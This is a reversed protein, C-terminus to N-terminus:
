PEPTVTMTKRKGGTLAFKVFGTAPFNRSTRNSNIKATVVGKGRAIAPSYWGLPSGSGMGKSRQSDGLNVLWRVVTSKTGAIEKVFVRLASGGAMMISYNVIDDSTKFTFSTGFRGDLSVVNAGMLPDVDAFKSQDQIQPTDDRSDNDTAFSFADAVSVVGDGDRDALVVGGDPREGALATTFYYSFEDYGCCFDGDSYMAYSPKDYAAASLFIRNPGALDDAFGGGNCQEMVFVMTDYETIKNVEAAFEADTILDDNWLGLRSGTPNNEPDPQDGHGTTFVFLLDEAQMRASLEDFVAHLKDKTASFDIDPIGDGDLDINYSWGMFTDIGPDRGDTFLVYINDEKYGYKNKLVRYLFSIDNWYRPWNGNRSASGGGILVAFKHGPHNTLLNDGPGTAIMGEGQSHRQFGVNQSGLSVPLKSEPISAPPKIVPEYRGMEVFQPLIDPPLRVQYVKFDGEKPNVFVLRAPHEWNAEPLDDVFLLFGSTEPLMISHRWVEVTMGPTTMRRFGFIRKGTRDGQLLGKVVVQYADELGVQAALVQTIGFVSVVLTMILLWKKM